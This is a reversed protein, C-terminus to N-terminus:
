LSGCGSVPNIGCSRCVGARGWKGGQHGGAGPGACSQLSPVARWCGVAVGSCWETAAVGSDRRADVFRRVRGHLHSKVARMM